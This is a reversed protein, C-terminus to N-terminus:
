GAVREDVYRIPLYRIPLSEAPTCQEDDDTHVWVDPEIEIIWRDHACRTESM